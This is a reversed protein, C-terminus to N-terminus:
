SHWKVDKRFNGMSEWYVFTEQRFLTKIFARSRQCPSEQDRLNTCANQEPSGSSSCTPSEGPCKSYSGPSASRLPVM